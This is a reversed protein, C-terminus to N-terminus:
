GPEHRGEEEIIREVVQEPTLDDSDICLDYVSRDDLDLDYIRKYRKRESKERTLIEKKVQEFSKDERGMVRKVRVDLSADIWVKFADVRNASAAYGSLRWDVVMGKQGAPGKMKELILRDLERDVDSNKEAFRGFQELSMGKEEAMTRFLMGAAVLVMGRREALIQAVTTKGSGPTGSITTIM